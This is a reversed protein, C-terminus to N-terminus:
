GRCANEYKAIYAELHGVLYFVGALTFEMLVSLAVFLVLPAAIGAFIWWGLTVGWGVGFSFGSLFRFLNTRPYNCWLEGFAFDVGAPIMLACALAVHSWTPPLLDGAMVALSCGCALAMALCRVCVRVGFLSWTRDLDCPAHHSLLMRWTSRSAGVSAHSLCNSHRAM